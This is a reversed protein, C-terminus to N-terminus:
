FGEPLRMSGPYWPPCCVTYGTAVHLGAHGTPRSCHYVEPSIDNCFKEDRGAIFPDTDGPQLLTWITVGRITDDM